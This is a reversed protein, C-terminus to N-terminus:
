DGNPPASGSRRDGERDRRARPRGHGGTREKTRDLSADREALGAEVAEPFRATNDYLEEGLRREAMDLESEDRDLKEAIDRARRHASAHVSKRDEM